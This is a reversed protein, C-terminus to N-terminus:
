PICRIAHLCADIIGKSGKIMLNYYGDKQISSGIFFGSDGDKLVTSEVQESPVFEENISVTVYEPTEVQELEFLETLKLDDKVEKKNGAVTIQM